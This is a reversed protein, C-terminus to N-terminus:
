KPTLRVIGDVGSFYLSTDDVAILSGGGSSEAITDPTGGGLPARVVPGPCSTPGQCSEASDTWYVSTTDLALQGPEDQDAAFTVIPGGAKPVSMVSGRNTWYVDTGTLAISRSFGNGESTVTTVTGGTVPVSIVTEGAAWYVSVDDSAIAAAFQGGPPGSALTAVAGGNVPVSLLTSLAGGGNLWYVNSSDLALVGISSQKPALTTPAGGDPVGAIPASMVAGTSYCGFRASCGYNVWYVRASDIAIAAPSFDGHALTSPSGGCKPVKM